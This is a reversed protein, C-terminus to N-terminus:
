EKGSPNALLLANEALILKGGASWTVFIEFVSLDFCISTSLLVGALEDPTFVGNAWQVFTAASLHEIAVGKPRGTSGSTFLVYALNGPKVSTVPNVEPEPSILHWDADLCIRRGGFNPLDEALAKQTLVIPAKADELIHRIRQKPYNPDLPVYASGSKLVGLIGVLMDATRECYIGVPVEPGAGRKM